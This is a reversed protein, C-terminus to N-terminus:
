FKKREKNWERPVVCSLLQSCALDPETEFTKVMIKIIVRRIMSSNRLSETENERKFTELRKVPCYLHILVIYCKLVKSFKSWNWKLRLGPLNIFYQLNWVNSSLKKVPRVIFVLMDCSKGKCWLWLIEKVRSHAM